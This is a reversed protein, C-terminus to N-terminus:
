CYGYLWKAVPGYSVRKGRIHNPMLRFTVSLRLLHLGEKLETTVCLNRASVM